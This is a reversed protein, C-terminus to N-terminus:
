SDKGTQNSTSPAATTATTAGATTGAAASDAPPAGTFTRATITGTLDTGTETSTAAGATSGSGEGEAIDLSDVVVIRPFDNVRNVFDLIQFYGGKVEMQLSIASPAASAAATTPTTAASGAAATTTTTGGGGTTGSTPATTATTAAAAADAAPKTPTVTTLEVGSAEAADNATLLLRALQPQDPVARRLQTLQDKLEPRRKELDQLRDLTVQLQSNTQEATAKRAEAADLRKGQPSWLLFFWLLSLVVAGAVGVIVARRNV